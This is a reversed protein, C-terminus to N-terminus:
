SRESDAAAKDFRLMRITEADAVRLLRSTVQGGRWDGRGFDSYSTYLHDTGGNPSSWPAPAHSVAKALVFFDLFFLFLDTSKVRGRTTHSPSCSQTAVM